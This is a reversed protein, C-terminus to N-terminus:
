VVLWCSKKAHGSHENGAFFSSEVVKQGRGGHGLSKEGRKERKKRRFEGKVKACFFSSCRPLLFKKKSCHSKKQVVLSTFTKREREERM